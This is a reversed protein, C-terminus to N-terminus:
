VKRECEDSVGDGLRSCFFDLWLGTVTKSSFQAEVRTRAEQGLRRREGPTLMREMKALLDQADGVQFLLGTGEDVVADTLGYIRSAIAPRRMAAAEIVVTGFGERFSPLVLVDAADLYDDPTATLGVVQSRGVVCTSLQPAIGEEDPGVWLLRPEPTKAALARFAEALVWVGKERQLRGLYLFVPADLPIGLSTRVRERRGPQEAFRGLDVGCVSGAGLVKVRGPPCIGEAELFRAQSLSDAFLDIACWALVRDTSKLLCRSLGRRTAWVQGTFVHSRSGVRAIRAALMALLGAKPTMSHVADFRRTRMLRLLSRLARLDRWLDVRRPIDLHIVEVRGDLRPSVPSEHINVCVTVSYREALAALQELLFANLVFPSTLVVCLSPRKREATARVETWGTVRSVPPGQDTPTQLRTERITM